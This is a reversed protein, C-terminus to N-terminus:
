FLWFVHTEIALFQTIYMYFVKIGVNRYYGNKKESCNAMLWTLHSKKKQWSIHPYKSILEQLYWNKAKSSHEFVYLMKSMLLMQRLSWECYYSSSLEKQITLQIM